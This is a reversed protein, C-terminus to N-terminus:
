CRAPRTIEDGAARHRVDQLAPARAPGAGVGRARDARLRRAGHRPVALPPPLPDVRQRHLGRAGDGRRHPAHRQRPVPRPAQASGRRPAPLVAHSSLRSWPSRPSGAGSRRRSSSATARARRASSSAAAASSCSRSTRPRDHLPVDGGGVPEPDVDPLRERVWAAIREVIAPDPTATTTRPRGRRGAPARRGEARAGPRPARVDRPRGDRRQARRDRAAAAGRPPLVRGDRADRAGAPGPVLRASGPAPPSSSSTPTSTTSRRSVRARDRRARRPRARRRPVRPARPRRPRRGGRAPVAGGLGAAAGRRARAGRGRRPAPVRRRVRRAGRGLDAGTGARARRARVARAAGARVAARARALRGDGGRRAPGLAARPVRAPRHAHPRPELRPRARPRVARAGDRRRRARDAGVGGRLGDRGRRRGRRADRRRRHEPASGLRPLSLEVVDGAGVPRQPVGAAAVVDGPLLRTNREARRAVPRGLRRGRQEVRGPDRGPRALDRLRAGEGGALGARALREDAHLRRDRRRRRDVAAIACCRSPDGRRGGPLHM